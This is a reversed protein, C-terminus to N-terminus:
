KKDRKEEKKEPKKEPKKEGAKDPQKEAKGDKAKEKDGKDKDKGEVAEGVEGPAAAEGEAAAAAEVVEPEGAKEELQVKLEEESIAYTVAAVVVEPESLLEVKGADVVLEKVRASDGIGLASVDITLFEPIDTPLCRVRVARLVHQLVGGQDKVGIAEGALKIHVEVEIKETMSIRGMDVHLLEDHLHNIQMERILALYSKGDISLNIIVNDSKSKLIGLLEKEDVSFAITEESGGYCVGPVRGAKRLQKAAGKGSATRREAKIVYENM